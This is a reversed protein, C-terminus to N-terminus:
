CEINIKGDKVFQKCTTKIELTVTENSNFIIIGTQGTKINKFQIENKQKEIAPKIEEANSQLAAFLTIILGSFIKILLNKM